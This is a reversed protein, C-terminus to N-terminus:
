CNSKIFDYIENAFIYDGNEDMKFDYSCHECNEQVLLKIKNMDYGYNKFIAILLMTQEYRNLMDNDAVVFEMPPYKEKGNIYFMPAAADVIVQNTDFGRERLVNFHTTPQGADFFYGSIDENSINHKALYEKNFCLMQTIYAGASIGGIFIGEAKIYKNINNIVWNVAAAGDEVFQPFVADPYLRYTVAVTTIGMKALTKSIGAVYDDKQTGSEIGGGHLYIFIPSSDKDAVYIDLLNREYEGYKIDEIVKM